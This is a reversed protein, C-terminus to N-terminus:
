SSISERVEGMSDIASQMDWYGYAIGKFLTSFKSTWESKSTTYGGAISDPVVISICGCLAAQVVMFNSHDYSIFYKKENFIKALYQDGGMEVYNDLSLADEPHANLPKAHGKRVIYCSGSRTLGKNYYIDLKLDLARLEGRVKSEDPAKFYNTYKYVLDNEGWIGNGGIIGPTQLVWRVVIQANLPNGDISEPYIAVDDPLIDFEQGFYVMKADEGLSCINTALVHLAIIGGSNPSFPPSYIYFTM